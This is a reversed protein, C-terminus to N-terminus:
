GGAAARDLLWVLRGDRPAIIQAPFTRPDYDGERIQKVISAKGQGECAFVVIRSNNLVSPTLTIRWQEQSSSYVARVMMSDSETPDAGPFLSATHGDPGVGLMVLDFRPEEGLVAVLQDRYQAAADAPDAEGRMRQINERPIGVARMFADNAMRYNSQDNDPPVCREDGFFIYVRTWDLAQTYAPTGLLQYAAKPTTGGALSVAYRGRTEIAERGCTVFLDALAKTVEEPTDYVRVEGHERM